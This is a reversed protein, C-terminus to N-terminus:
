ADVSFRIHSIHQLSSFMPEWYGVQFTSRITLYRVKLGLLSPEIGEREVGRTQPTAPACETRVRSPSPEFGEPSVYGSESLATRSPGVTKRRQDRFGSVCTRSRSGSSM